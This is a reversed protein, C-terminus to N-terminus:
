KLKHDLNQPTNYEGPIGIKAAIGVGKAVSYRIHM